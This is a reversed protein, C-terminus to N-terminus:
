YLGINQCLFDIPSINLAGRGVINGSKVVCTQWIKLKKGKVEIFVIDSVDFKTSGWIKSRSISQHDKRLGLGFLIALTQM